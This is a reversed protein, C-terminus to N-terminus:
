QIAEKYMLQWPTGNVQLSYTGLNVTVGPQITLTVGSRVQVIGTLTYPSNAQTWTTDSNVQGYVSMGTQASSFRLSGLFLLSSVLFILLLCAFTKKM